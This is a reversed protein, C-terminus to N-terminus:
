FNIRCPEEPGAQLERSQKEVALLKQAKFFLDPDNIMNSRQHHNSKQYYDYFYRFERTSLPQKLAYQLLAEAHSPMARAMPAMVRTASWLSLKGQTVAHLISDPLQTLLLLRRGVWSPDRGIKNALHSQSLGHQTHLEHLLMAEELVEWTRSQREALLMLLAETLGCNWVEVVVVDQGIRRLANIRLYGDILVWQNTNSPVAVVPVLQGQSELSLALKDLLGRRHLRLLAYPQQLCHHEVTILTKSITNM